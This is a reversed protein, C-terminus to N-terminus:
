GVGSSSSFDSASRKCRAVVLAASALFFASDSMVAGLVGGGAEGVGLKGGDYRVPDCLFM